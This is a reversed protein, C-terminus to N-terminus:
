KKLIKKYYVEGENVFVKLFYVGKQFNEINIEFFSSSFENSYVKLGKTDFILVSYSKKENSPMKVNFKGDSPNPYLHILEDTFDIKNSVVTSLENERNASFSCSSSNENIVLNVYGEFGPNYDGSLIDINNIASFDLKATNSVINNNLMISYPLSKLVFHWRDIIRNEVTVLGYEEVMDKAMKVAKYTDLRGAGILGNYPLNQQITDNKFATLKLISEVEDPFLCENVSLMLGITGTVLPASYSTGSGYSYSELSNTTATLINWGPASMDVKENYTAYYPPSSRLFVNKWLDEHYGATGIEYQHGVNTVSIVNDFSAPFHMYQPGAQCSWQGNGAAAVLVVNYDEYVENILTNEYITPNTQCSGWSMNIVRAGSQALPLLGSYYYASLVKVDFGVSSMGINNDTNAGAILAVQTGHGVSNPNNTFNDVIDSKNVLDHHSINVNEAIGITVGSGTTLDWALDAGIFTLEPQGNVGSIGFDNPIYLPFIEPVEVINFINSYNSTLVEVLKTECEIIYTRLLLERRTGPFAFYFDKIYHNLFVNNLNINQEVRLSLLGSKTKILEPKFKLDKIEFYYKKVEQNNLSTQSFIFNFIFFLITTYIKIM